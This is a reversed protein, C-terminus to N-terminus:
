AAKPKTPDAPRGIVPATWETPAGTFIPWPKDRLGGYWNNHRGDFYGLEVEAVDVDDLANLNVSAYAGGLEPLDGRAFVHIGCHACFYRTGSKGGWQYTRLADEGQTVRLADPRAIASTIATKTCISCNCRSGKTADVDVEFRVAGCHCSGQHTKTIM